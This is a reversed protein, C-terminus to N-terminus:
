HFICMRISLGGSMESMRNTKNYPVPLDAEIRGQFLSEHDRNSFQERHIFSIQFIGFGM